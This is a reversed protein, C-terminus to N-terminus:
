KKEDGGFLKSFAAKTIDGFQYEDKGTFQKVADGGKELAAKTVDGFKYDEKGTFDAVASTAKDAVTKSIDGFEYQEKGTFSTVAAQSALELEKAVDDLYIDDLAATAKNARKNIEKTVDGFEYDEKGIFDTLGEAVAQQVCSSADSAMETAAIGEATKALVLLRALDRLRDPNDGEKAKAIQEKLDAELKVLALQGDTDGVVEADLVDSHRVLVTGRGICGLTPAVFVGPWSVRAAILALQLLSAVYLASLLPRRPRLHLRPATSLQRAMAETLTSRARV